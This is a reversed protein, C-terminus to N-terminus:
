SERRLGQVVKALRDEFQGGQELINVKQEMVLEILEARIYEVVKVGVGDVFIFKGTSNMKVALKAKVVDGQDNPISVWTGIGISDVLLKAKRTAIAKAEEQSKQEALQAEQEALKQEQEALLRAEEQQKALKEAEDRAKQAAAKQAAEHLRRQAEQKAKELAIARAKEQQALKDAAKTAKSEEFRQQLNTLVSGLAEEFILRDEILSAAQTSLLVAFESKSVQLTKQGNRNVLLLQDIDPSVMALKHRGQSVIDTASGSSTVGSNASQESQIRFWQGVQLNNVRDLLQQSVVTTVGDIGEPQPLPAIKECKPVGGQLIVIQAQEIAMMAPEGGSFHPAIEGIAKSLEPVLQPILNFRKQQTTEDHDPKFIWAMTKLLRTWRQVQASHDPTKILYLRFEKIWHTTFFEVAMSPLQQGALCTNFLTASTLEAQRARIMGLESDCIRQEVMAERKKEQQCFSLFDELANSWGQIPDQIVTGVVTTLTNLYSEGMRGLGSHWGLSSQYIQNILLRAPATDDLWAHQNSIQNIVFARRLGLLLDILTQDLQDTDLLTDFLQISFRLFASEPPDLSKSIAEFDDGNAICEVIDQPFNLDSLHEVKKGAGEQHYVAQLLALFHSEDGNANQATPPNADVMYSESTDLLRIQM